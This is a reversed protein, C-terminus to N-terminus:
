HFKSAITLKPSVKTQKSITACSKNWSSALAFTDQCFCLSNLPNLKFRDSLDLKLSSTRYTAGGLFVYFLFPLFRAQHNLFALLM